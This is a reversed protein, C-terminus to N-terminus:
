IKKFGMIRLKEHMEKISLRVAPFLYPQARQNVKRIGKGKFTMAYDRVDSPAVVMNGTGFEKYPAYSANVYVSGSLKNNIKMISSRLFGFNVPAFMKARRAINCTTQAILSQLKSTNKASLSNTWRKFKAQESAPFSINVFGSM